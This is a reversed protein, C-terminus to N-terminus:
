LRLGLPPDVGTVALAPGTVKAWVVADLGIVVPMFPVTVKGDPILL